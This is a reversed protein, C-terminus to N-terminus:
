LIGLDFHSFVYQRTKHVGGRVEDEHLVALLSSIHDSPQLKLLSQQLRHKVSTRHEGETTLAQVIALFQEPNVHANKMISEADKLDYKGLDLGRGAFLKQIVVVEPPLTSVAAGLFEEQNPTFTGITELSVSLEADPHVINSSAIFDLEVGNGAHSMLKDSKFIAKGKNVTFAGGFEQELAMRSQPDGPVIFDLDRSLPREGAPWHEHSLLAASIGGTLFLPVNRKQAREVTEQLADRIEAHLPTEEICYVPQETRNELM